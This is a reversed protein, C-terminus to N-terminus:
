VPDSTTQKLDKKVDNEKANTTPKRHRKRRTPRKKPQKADENQAEQKEEPKQDSKEEIKEVPLPRFCLIRHYPIIEKSHPNYFCGDDYIMSVVYQINELYPIGTNLYEDMLHIDVEMLRELSDRYVIRILRKEEM